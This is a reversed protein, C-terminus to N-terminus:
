ARTCGCHKGIRGDVASSALLSVCQRFQGHNRLHAGWAVLAYFNTLRKRGHKAGAAFEKAHLRILTPYRAHMM